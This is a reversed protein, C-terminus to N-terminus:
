YAAAPLLAHGVRFRNGPDYVSKLRLMRAREAAPWAARVDEPRFSRGLFNLFTGHARWPRLADFLAQVTLPGIDSLPPVDPAMAFVLFPARRGPVSGPDGAPHAIAGGLRRIEVIVAPYQPSMAAQGLLADVAQEDLGALLMGREHVPLPGPPDQHVLDIETVPIEGMSDLLTPAFARAQGAIRAGQEAPGVHTMRVSVVFRGRISEPLHPDPPLRLLAVSSSTADSHEAVWGRYGQLV